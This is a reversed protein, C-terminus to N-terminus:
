ESLYTHVSSLSLADSIRGPHASTRRNRSFAIVNPNIIAATASALHRSISFVYVIIAQSTPGRLSPHRKKNRTHESTQRRAARPCGVAVWPISSEPSSFPAIYTWVSPLRGGGHTARHSTHDGWKGLHHKDKTALTSLPQTHGQSAMDPEAPSTSRCYWM